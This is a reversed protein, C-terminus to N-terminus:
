FDIVALGPISSELPITEISTAGLEALQYRVRALPLEPNGADMQVSFETFNVGEKMTPEDAFLRNSELYELLDPVVEKKGNFLLVVKNEAFIAGYVNLLVMRALAYKAPNSKVDPNVWIGAQSKMIEEVIELGYNRIASGTQTLEVGLHVGGHRVKAETKGWTEYIVIGSDIRPPTKYKQVSFEKHSNEFGLQKKKEQFWQLAVYPMESVMAILKNETLIDRLWADGDGDHDCPTRIIVVRVGGRGLPLVRELRVECDYEFKLELRRECIWDDGGIAMDLEGLGLQSGFEQPRGDWGILYPNVPFESPGGRDYNETPFGANRLLEILNGGRATDALSGAPLGIVLHQSYDKSSM